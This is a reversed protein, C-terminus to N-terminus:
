HKAATTAAPATAPSAAPAAATMKVIAGARLQNIYSEITDSEVQQMLQERMQDMAPPPVSREDELQIVHWGYRSRVPQKTYEGKKLTALAASFEPVMQEAPFWDGLDGGRVASGTDKSYKQALKGFDAGRQLQAIIDKAEDESAVLIHRAKYERNSMSKMHADYANKIQDPTVPHKELYAQVEQQALLRAQILTLQAAVDPKAALGSKQAEQALVEMEILTNLATQRDQDNQPERGTSNLIYVHVMESTIPTGNVTALVANDNGSIVGHKGCAALGAALVIFIVVRFVTRM